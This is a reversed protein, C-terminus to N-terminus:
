PLSQNLVYRRLAQAVGEADNSETVVDAQERIERPANAMAVGLGAYRLMDLDNFNDGIAIVQDPSIGHRRGIVDVATAKSARHSLIELFWYINGHLSGSTFVNADHLRARLQQLAALVRERRDIVVMHTPQHGFDAGDSIPHLIDEKGQLYRHLGENAASVSRYYLFYRGERFDYVIPEFGERRLLHWATRALRASMPRREMVRGTHAEVIMAGNHLVLPFRFPIDRIVEQAKHFSRGTCLMILIGRERVEHLVALTAESIRQEPTLLTGDIDLAVLRFRGPHPAM